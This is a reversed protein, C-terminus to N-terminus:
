RPRVLTLTVKWSRLPFHSKPKWKNKQCHSCMHLSFFYESFLIYSVRAMHVWFSGHCESWTAPQLTELIQQKNGLAKIFGNPPHHDIQFTPGGLDLKLTQCEFKSCDPKPGTRDSSNTESLLCPGQGDVWITHFPFPSGWLSFCFRELPLDLPHVPDAIARFAHLSLFSLVLTQKLLSCPLEWRTVCGCISVRAMAHGLTFTLEKGVGWRSLPKWLPKIKYGSTFLDREMEKM